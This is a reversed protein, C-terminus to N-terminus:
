NIAKKLAKIVPKRKKESKEHALLKKLTDLPLNDRKINSIVVGINRDLYDDIMADNSPTEEKKLESSKEEVKKVEKGEVQEVHPVAYMRLWLKAKEDPVVEGPKYGGVELLAKYM